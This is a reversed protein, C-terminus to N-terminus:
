VMRTIFHAFQCDGSGLYCPLWLITPLLVNSLKCTTEMMIMKSTSFTETFTVAISGLALICREDSVTTATYVLALTLHRRRRCFMFFLDSADSSFLSWQIFLPDDFTLRYQRIRPPRFERPMSIISMTAQRTYNSWLQKTIDSNRISDATCLITNIMKFPKSQNLEENLENGNDGSKKRHGTLFWM